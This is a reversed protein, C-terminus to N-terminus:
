QNSLNPRWDVIQQGVPVSRGAGGRPHLRIMIVAGGRHGKHVILVCEEQGKVYRLTKIGAGTLSISQWGAKLMAQQLETLVDTLSAEGTYRLDTVRPGRAPVDMYSVEYDLTFESPVPIDEFRTGLWRMTPQPSSAVKGYPPPPPPERIVGYSCGGLLFAAATLCAITRWKM